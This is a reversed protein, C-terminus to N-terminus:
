WGGLKATVLFFPLELNLWQTEVVPFGINRLHEEYFSPPRFSRFFLLMPLLSFPVGATPVRFPGREYILITGGPTLAQSARTLLRKAEAEPWDHLMSKFTVLDFDGPLPDTLASGAVFRIRGAEPAPAVHERGVACVLPLDFVVAELRPCARCLQLAFEGSNGGIDLLRGYRDFSHVALCAQAEYRTLVTTFRMWARTRRLNEPTPDFCHQYNFLRFIRSARQFGAPDNILAPFHELIDPAALTAFDIKAELLDRYPLVSQFSPTLEVGAPTEQVVSNAALLDLLLDLGDQEGGLHDALSKRAVPQLRLLTDIVGTRLATGLACAAVFGTLFADVQLYSPPTRSVAKM